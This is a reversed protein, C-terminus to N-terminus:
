QKVEYLDHFGGDEVREMRPLSTWDADEGSEIPFVIWDGFDFETDLINIWHMEDTNRQGNPTGINVKALPVGHASCFTEIDMRTVGVDIQLAHVEEPKRRYVPYDNM